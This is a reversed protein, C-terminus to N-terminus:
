KAGSVKGPVLAVHSAGLTQVMEYEWTGSAASPESFAGCNDCFFSQSRFVFQQEHSTLRRRLRFLGRLVLTNEWVIEFESLRKKRM